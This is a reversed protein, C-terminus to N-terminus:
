KGRNKRDEDDHQGGSRTLVVFSTSKKAIAATAVLKFGAAHCFGVLRCCILVPGRGDDLNSVSLACCNEKPAGM